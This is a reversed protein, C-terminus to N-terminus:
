KGSLALPPSLKLPAYIASTTFLYNATSEDWADDRALRSAEKFSRLAARSKPGWVGDAPASLYGLEVLRMQVRMIEPMDRLALDTNNTSTRPVAVTRATADPIVRVLGVSATPQPTSNGNPLSKTAPQVHNGATITTPGKENSSMVIGGLIGLAVLAAAVGQNRKRRRYAAYCQPCLWIDKKRYYTRGTSYSRTGRSSFRFSGSSRGTEKEITVSYAENKSLRRYCGACECTGYTVMSAGATALMQDLRSLALEIM